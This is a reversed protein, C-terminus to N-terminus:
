IHTFNFPRKVEYGHKKFINTHERSSHSLLLPAFKILFDFFRIEDSIFIVFKQSTIRTSIQYSDKIKARQTIEIGVAFGVYYSLEDYDGRIPIVTIENLFRQGNRRYNIVRARCEHGSNIENRMHYVTTPDTHERRSGLTVHGDPAQLFRCNRGIIERLPYGTLREFSDNAYVVPLDPKRADVAFEYCPFCTTKKKFSFVKFRQDIKSVLIGLMDFGSTSYIIGLGPLVPPLPPIQRSTTTDRSSRSSSLSNISHSSSQNYNNRTFGFFAQAISTSHSSNYQPHQLSHDLSGNNQRDNITYMPLQNISNQSSIQLPPNSSSDPLIFVANHSNLGSDEEQSSDSSESNAYPLGRQPHFNM